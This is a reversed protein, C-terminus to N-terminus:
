DPPFLFGICFVIIQGCQPFGTVLVRKQMFQPLSRLTFSRCWLLVGEVGKLDMEQEQPNRFGGPLLNQLWHPAAIQAKPYAERDILRGIGGGGDRRYANPSATRHDKLLAGLRRVGSRLYGWLQGRAPGDAPDLVPERLSNKDLNFIVM